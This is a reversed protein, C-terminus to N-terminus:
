IFDFAGHPLLVNKLHFGFHWATVARKEFSILLGLPCSCM